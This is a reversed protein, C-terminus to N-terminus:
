RAILVFYDANGGSNMVLVDNTFGRPLLRLWDDLTTGPVDWTTVKFGREALLGAAETMGYVRVVQPEQYTNYLGVDSRDLFLSCMATYVCRTANGFIWGTFAWRHGGVSRGLMDTVARIRGDVGPSTDVRGGIDRCITITEIADGMAAYPYGTAAVLTNVAKNLAAFGDADLLHNARGFRGDLWGIPQGRGAALAVAATWAPDGTSTIVIGAPTFDHRDFVATISEADPPGDWTSRVVAEIADRTIRTNGVSQRRVVQAPNFRRIFMSAYRDDEILVPWRAKTSWKGLEDLYTATDPVLVVRDLVPFARRVQEVRLGLAIGWHPQDPPAQAGASVTIVTFVVLAPAVRM